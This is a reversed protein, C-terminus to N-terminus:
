EKCNLFTQIDTHRDDILLHIQKSGKLFIYKHVKLDEFVLYGKSCKLLQTKSKIEREWGGLFVPAFTWPSGESRFDSGDSDETTLDPTEKGLRDRGLTM